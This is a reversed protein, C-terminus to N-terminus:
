RGVGLLAALYMAAAGALLAPAVRLSLSLTMAALMDFPKRRAPSTQARTRRAKKRQKKWVRTPTALALTACLITIAAVSHM